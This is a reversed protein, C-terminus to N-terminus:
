RHGFKSTFPKSTSVWLGLMAAYRAGTAGWVIKAISECISCIAWAIPASGTSNLSRWRCRSPSLIALPWGHSLLPATSTSVRM